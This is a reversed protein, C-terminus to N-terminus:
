IRLVQISAPSRPRTSSLFQLDTSGSGPSHDVSSLIVPSIVAISQLSLQKEEHTARSSPKLIHEAPDDPEEMDLLSAIHADEEVGEFVLDVVFDGTVIGSLLLAFWSVLFM